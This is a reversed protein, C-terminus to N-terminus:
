VHARGIKKLKGDDFTLAESQRHELFLEGDDAGSLADKLAAGAAERTLDATFFDHASM